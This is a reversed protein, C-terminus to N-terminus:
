SKGTAIMLLHSRERVVIYLGLSRQLTPADPGTATGLTREVAVPLAVCLNAVSAFSETQQGLAARM